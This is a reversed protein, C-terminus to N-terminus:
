SAVTVYFDLIAGDHCRFGQSTKENEYNKVNMSLFVQSKLMKHNETDSCWSVHSNDFNGTVFSYM